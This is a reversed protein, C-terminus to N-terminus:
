NLSSNTESEINEETTNERGFVYVKNDQVCKHDVKWTVIKLGTFDRREDFRQFCKLGHGDLFFLRTFMGGVQLPDALMAKYEDEQPAFLISFGVKKEEFKREKVGDKTVYVISNPKVEENGELKM